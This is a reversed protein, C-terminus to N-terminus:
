PRVKFSLYCYGVVNVYSQLSLASVNLLLIPSAPIWQSLEFFNQASLRDASITRVLKQKTNALLGHSPFAITFNVYCIGM